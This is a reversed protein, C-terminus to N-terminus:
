EQRENKAKQTEEPHSDESDQEDNDDAYTPKVTGHIKATEM